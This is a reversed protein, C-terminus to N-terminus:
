RDRPEGAQAPISEIGAEDLRNELLAAGRVSSLREDLKSVSHAIKRVQRISQGTVTAVAGQVAMGVGISFLLDSM